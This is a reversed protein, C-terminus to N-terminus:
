LTQFIKYPQNQIATGYYVFNNNFTTTTAKYVLCQPLCEGNLPNQDAIVNAITTTM